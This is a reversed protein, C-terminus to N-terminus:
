LLDPSSPPIVVGDPGQIIVSGPGGAPPERRLCDLGNSLRFKGMLSSQDVAYEFWEKLQARDDGTSDEANGIVGSDSGAVKLVECINATCDDGTCIAGRQVLAYAIGDGVWLEFATGRVSITGGPTNIQYRNKPANGTVFRFTGGLADLVMKGTSGNERLLYDEILLQSRPGIVLKTNDAFLIQVEGSAGTVIRDGIFIDSGVVLTRTEGARAEADPDVGQASGAADGYAATPLLLLLLGLLRLM